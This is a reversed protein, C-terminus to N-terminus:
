APRSDIATDPYACPPRGLGRPYGGARPHHLVCRGTGAASTAAVVDLDRHGGSRERARGAGARQAVRPEGLPRALRKRRRADVATLHVEGVGDLRGGRNEPLGPQRQHAAEPLGVTLALARRHRQGLREAGHDIGRVGGRRSRLGEPHAGGAKAVDAVAGIEDDGPPRVRDGGIGPQKGAQLEIARPARGLARQHDDVCPAARGGALRVLEDLECRLEVELREPSQSCQRAVDREVAVERGPQREVGELLERAAEAGSTVPRNEM